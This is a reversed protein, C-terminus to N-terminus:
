PLLGDHALELLFGFRVGFLGDPLHGAILQQHLFAFLRLSFRGIRFPGDTAMVLADDTVFTSLLLGAVLLAGLAHAPHISATVRRSLLFVTLQRQIHGPRSGM